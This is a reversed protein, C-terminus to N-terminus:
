RTGRRCSTYINSKILYKEIDPISDSLSIFIINRDPKQAQRPSWESRPKKYEIRKDTEPRPRRLSLNLYDM